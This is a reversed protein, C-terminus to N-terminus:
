SPPTERKAFLAAIVAGIATGVPVAIGVASSVDGASAGFIIAVITGVGVIGLGIYKGTRATKDSM